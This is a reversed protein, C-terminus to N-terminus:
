TIREWVLPNCLHLDKVEWEEYGVKEIQNLPTEDNGIRQCNFGIDTCRPEANRFCKNTCVCCQDTNPNCELLDGWRMNKMDPDSPGYLGCDPLTIDIFSDGQIVIPFINLIPSVKLPGWVPLLSSGMCKDGPEDPSTDEPDFPNAGWNDRRCYRKDEPWATDYPDYSNYDWPPNNSPDNNVTVHGNLLYFSIVEKHRDNELEDCIRRPPNGSVKALCVAELDDISNGKRPGSILYNVILTNPQPIIRPTNAAIEDKDKGGCILDGYNEQGIIPYKGSLLPFERDGFLKDNGRGGYVIDEREMGYIEDDGSGGFLIDNDSSCIIKNIDTGEDFSPPNIMGSGSIRDNGGGAYVIDSGCGAEIRDNGGEETEPLVKGEKLALYEPLNQIRHKVDYYMAKVDYRKPSDKYPYDTQHQSLLEYPDVKFNSDSIVIDDGRGAYIDDNNMSGLIIDDAEGGYIEKGIDNTSSGEQAIIIDNESVYLSEYIKDGFGGILTDEGEGGLIIVESISQLVSGDIIDNGKEGDVLVYEIPKIGSELKIIDDGDGGLIIANEPNSRSDIIRDNGENGFIIADRFNGFLTIDDDIKRGELYISSRPDDSKILILKIFERDRLKEPEKSAPLFILEANFSECDIKGIYFIRKRILEQGKEPAACGAFFWAAIIVDSGKKIGGFLIPVPCNLDDNIIDRGKRKIMDRDLCETATFEIDEVGQLNEIAVDGAEPAVIDKVGDSVGGYVPEPGGMFLFNLLYIADTLDIKQDGNNDVCRKCNVDEGGQFMWQLQYVADAVDIRGDDNADGGRHNGGYIVGQEQAAALSFLSFFAFAFILSMSGRKKKM